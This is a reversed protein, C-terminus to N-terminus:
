WLALFLYLVGFWYHYSDPSNTLTLLIGCIWLCAKLVTSAITKKASTKAVQGWFQWLTLPPKM